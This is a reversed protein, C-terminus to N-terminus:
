RVVGVARKQCRHDFVKLHEAVQPSGIQDRDLAILMDYLFPYSYGVSHYARKPLHELVRGYM